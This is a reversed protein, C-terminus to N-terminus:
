EETKEPVKFSNLPFALTLGIVLFSDSEFFTSNALVPRMTRRATTNLDLNNSELDEYKFRPVIPAQLM